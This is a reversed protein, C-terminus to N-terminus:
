RGPDTPPPAPPVDPRMTADDADEGSDLAAGPDEEGVASELPAPGLRPDREHSPPKAHGASPSPSAAPAMSGPGTSPHNGDAPEGAVDGHSAPTIM